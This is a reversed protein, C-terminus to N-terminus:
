ISEEARYLEATRSLQRGGSDTKKKKDLCCSTVVQWSLLMILRVSLRNIGDSM